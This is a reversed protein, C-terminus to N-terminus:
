VREKLKEIIRELEMGRSAKIFVYGKKRKLIEEVLEDLDDFHKKSQLKKAGKIYNEALKGYTFLAANELNEALYRGINEHYIPAKPGLELMDGLVFIIDEKIGMEKVTEILAKMSEPNANYADNLIHFHGISIPEMRMPSPGINKVEEKIDKLPVGLIKATIIAATLNTVLHKGILPTKYIEDEVKFTTGEMSVEIIKPTEYYFVRVMKPLSAEFFDLFPSKKNLIAIDFMKLSKFLKSKEIAAEEETHLFELHSKGVRTLVAVSPEAISVLYDMEYPRSIGYELVLFDDKEKAKLISFPLGIFGNYSKITKSVNYKISLLRHILDKTTTKGVSGTIGIVKARLKSMLYNKALRGMAMVPEDVLISPVNETKKYEPVVACVAGKNIAEKAFTAGDFREGRIGFFMDGKQISRSDISIGTIIEDGSLRYLKGGMINAVERATYRM